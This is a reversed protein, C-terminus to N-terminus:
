CHAVVGCVDGLEIIDLVRAQPRRHVQAEVHEVGRQALQHVVRDFLDGIGAVAPGGHGDGQVGVSRDADGVVPAAKGDVGVRHGALVADDLCQAGSPGAALEGGM